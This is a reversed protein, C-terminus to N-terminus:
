RVERRGEPNTFNSRNTTWLMGRCELLEHSVPQRTRCGDIGYIQCQEVLLDCPIQPRPAALNSVLTSEPSQPWAAREPRQTSLRRRRAFLRIRRRRCLDLPRLQRRQGNQRSRPQLAHILRRPSWLYLPCYYISRGANDDSVRAIIGSSFRPLSLVPPPPLAFGFRGDLTALVRQWESTLGHDSFVTYVIYSSADATALLYVFVFSAWRTDREMRIPTM